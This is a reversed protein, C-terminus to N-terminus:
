RARNVQKELVTSEVLRYKELERFGSEVMSVVNLIVDMKKGKEEFTMLAVQQTSFAGLIFNKLPDAPKGAVMVGDQYVGSLLVKRVAERMTDNAMFKAIEGKETENLYEM